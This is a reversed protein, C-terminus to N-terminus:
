IRSRSVVWVPFKQVRAYLGDVYLEITSPDAWVAEEAYRDQPVVDISCSQISVTTSAILALLSYKLKNKIRM